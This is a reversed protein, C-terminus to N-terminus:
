IGAPTKENRKAKEPMGGGNKYGIAPAVSAPLLIHVETGMGEMSNVHLGYKAGYLLRIRENVNVLAIGTSQKEQILAGRSFKENLEDLMPAKVGIGNDEVSIHLVADSLFARIMIVGNDAKPELGHQIANEVIPQLTLKPIECNFISDTQPDIVKKLIFRDGFRYRIIRMYNEINDLEQELTNYVAKPNISYRFLRSLSEIIDAADILDEEMLQGRISDLTNYLFHPNIQSQLANLEAQKKLMELSYDNERKQQFQIILDFFSQDFHNKRKLRGEIAEGGHNNGQIMKMGNHIRSLPKYFDLVLLVAGACLLIGSFVLAVAVATDRSRLFYLWAAAALLAILGLLLLLTLILLIQLNVAYVKNKVDRM